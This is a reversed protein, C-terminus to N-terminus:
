RRQDRYAKCAKIFADYVPAPKWPRSKFEPHFQVGVCFHVGRMEISNIIEGSKDTSSVVLGFPELQKAYENNIHFRHRFREHIVEAQYAEHVMTGKKVHIEHAGLRMTGGLMSITKQDSLMDVAPHATKPDIETTNADAYGLFRRCMAIFMLQSGYCIGLYPIKKTIACDAAAIMGEVGREGFGPTLLVGDYRGIEEACRGDETDLWNIKVDVGNRAGAHKLAENISIYSDKNKTYKGPMVIDITGGPHTKFTETMRKWDSYSEVYDVLRPQLRLITCVTDGLSQKEFCLPLEYITDINPNSIVRGPSVNCFLSVKKRSPEDLAITSRCIVVDPQLGASQLQRVSHQTPKSKLEGVSENYPVLTVHVLCTDGEHELRMQRFAELFIMSELDGVTGGCEVMLVDLGESRAIQLLRNKIADTAHPILQVTKGLFEGHREKLIIEMFVQGSTINHSPHINKGIFREYTGFDQDLEAIKFTDHTCDVPTYQWVDETVFTEGHEIPSLTGPDVNFYPDIKAISVKYGRFQMLKAISATTVGKGIGSMVGGTIFVFKTM